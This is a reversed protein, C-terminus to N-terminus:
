EILMYQRTSQIIQCVYLPNAIESIDNVHILVTFYHLVKYQDTQYFFSM